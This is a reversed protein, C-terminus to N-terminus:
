SRRSLNQLAKKPKDWDTHLELAQEWDAKARIEDSLALYAEGRNYLIEAQMRRLWSTGQHGPTKGADWEGIINSYLEVAERYRGLDYLARGRLLEFRGPEPYDTSLAMGHGSSELAGAPDGAKLRADALYYWYVKAQPEREARERCYEVVRPFYVPYIDEAPVFTDGEWRIM